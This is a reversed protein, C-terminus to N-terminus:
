AEHNACVFLQGDFRAAPAEHVIPTLNEGSAAAVFSAFSLTTVPAVLVGSLTDSDPVPPM